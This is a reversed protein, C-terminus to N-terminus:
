SSLKPTTTLSSICTMPLMQRTGALFAKPKIWLGLLPHSPYPGFPLPLHKLWWAPGLSVVTTPKWGKIGGHVLEGKQTYRLSSCPVNLPHPSMAPSTSFCRHLTISLSPPWASFGQALSRGLALLGPNRSQPAPLLLFHTRPHPPWTTGM